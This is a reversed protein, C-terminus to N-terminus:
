HAIRSMQTLNVHSVTDYQVGFVRYLNPIDQRQKYARRFGHLAKNFARRRSEQSLRKGQVRRQVLSRIAQAGDRTEKGDCEEWLQKLEALMEGSESVPMASQLAAHLEETAELLKALGIHAPSWCQRPNGAPQQPVSFALKIAAERVEEERKLERLHQLWLAASKLRIDYEKRDLLVSEGSLLFM